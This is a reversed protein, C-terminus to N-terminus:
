AARNEVCELRELPRVLSNSARAARGAPRLLEASPEDPRCPRLLSKVSSERALRVRLVPLCSEAAERVIGRERRTLREVRRLYRSDGVVEIARLLAAALMSNQTTSRGDTCGDLVRMLADHDRETLLPADTDRLSELLREAALSAARARRDQVNWPPVRPAHLWAGLVIVALTL